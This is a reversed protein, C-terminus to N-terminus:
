PLVERLAKEKTFNGKHKPPLDNAHFNFSREPEQRQGLLEETITESTLSVLRIRYLSSTYVLTQKMKYKLLLFKEKVRQNNLEILSMNM